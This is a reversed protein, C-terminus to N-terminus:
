TNPYLISYGEGELLHYENCNFVLEPKLANKYTEKDYEQIMPCAWTIVEGETFHERMEIQALQAFENIEDVPLEEDFLLFFIGFTDSDIQYIYADLEGSAVYNIHYDITEIVDGTPLDFYKSVVTHLNIGEIVISDKNVTKM